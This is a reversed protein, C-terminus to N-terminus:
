GNKNPGKDKDSTRLHVAQQARRQEVHNFVDIPSVTPVMFVQGPPFQATLGAIAGRLIGYLANFALIRFRLQAEDGSVPNEVRFEGFIRAAIQYGAVRAFKDKSEFSVHLNMGKLHEDSNNDLVDYWITNKCSFDM